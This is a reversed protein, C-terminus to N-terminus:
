LTRKNEKDSDLKELLDFLEMAVKAPDRNIESGSFRIVRYGNLQLLRDRLRDREFTEKDQHFAFGDCEVVIKVSPDGPVWILIDVRVSKDYVKFDPFAAQPSIHYSNWEFHKVISNHILIDQIEEETFKGTKKKEILANEFNDLEYDQTADKYSEILGEIIEFKERRSSICKEANELPPTFHLCLHKNKVFLLILSNLFVREIPSHCYKFVYEANRETIIPIFKEYFAAFPIELDETPELYLEKISEHVFNNLLPLFTM